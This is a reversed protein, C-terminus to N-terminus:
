NITNQSPGSEDSDGEPYEETPGAQHHVMRWKGARKVFVNTAALAQGEIIEYCTVIGFPGYLLPTVSTYTISPPAPGRLIADFSGLVSERGILMSWGPHICAVDVDDAWLDSLADLDCSTFAQYFMENAFVLADTESM